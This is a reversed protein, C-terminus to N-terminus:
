TTVYADRMKVEMTKFYFDIFVCVKLWALDAQATWTQYNM